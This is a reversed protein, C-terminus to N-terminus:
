EGREKRSQADISDSFIMNKWQRGLGYDYDMMHSAHANMRSIIM